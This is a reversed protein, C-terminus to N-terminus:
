AGQQVSLDIRVDRIIIINYLFMIENTIHRDYVAMSRVCFYNTIDWTPVGGVIGATDYNRAWLYM